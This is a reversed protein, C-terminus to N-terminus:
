PARVIPVRFLVLIVPKQSVIGQVGMELHSIVMMAFKLPILNVMEVDRVSETIIPLTIPYMVNKSVNIRTSFLSGVLLVHVSKDPDM